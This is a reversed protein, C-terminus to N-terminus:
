PLYFESNRIFQGRDTELHYRVDQAERLEHEQVRLLKTSMRPRSSSGIEDNDVYLTM